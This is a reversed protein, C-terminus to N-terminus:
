PRRELAEAIRVLVDKIEVLREVMEMEAFSGVVQASQEARKNEYEQDEIKNGM